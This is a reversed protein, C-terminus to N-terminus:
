SASGKELIAGVEDTDFARLSEGRVNGLASLAVVFAAYIEGDPAESCPTWCEQAVHLVLRSQQCSLQRPPTMHSRLGDRPLFRITKEKCERALGISRPM